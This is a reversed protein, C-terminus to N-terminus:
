DQLGDRDFFENLLYDILAPDFGVLPWTLQCNRCSLSQLYLTVRVQKVACELVDQTVRNAVGGRIGLDIEGNGRLSAFCHYRNPVVARACGFPAQGPQEIREISHLRVSVPGAAADAETKRNGPSRNLEM